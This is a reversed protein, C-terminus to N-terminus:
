ATRGDGLVPRGDAILVYTTAMSVVITVGKGVLKIRQLAVTDDDSSRLFSLKERGWIVKKGVWPVTQLWETIHDSDTVLTAQDAFDTTPEAESIEVGQTSEAHEEAIRRLFEDGEGLDVAQKYLESIENAGPSDSAQQVLANLEESM